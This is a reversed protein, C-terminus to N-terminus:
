RTASLGRPSGKTQELRPEPSEAKSGLDPLQRLRRYSLCDNKTTQGAACCGACPLASRVRLTVRRLLQFDTHVLASRGKKCSAVAPDLRPRKRRGEGRLISIRRLGIERWRWCRLRM